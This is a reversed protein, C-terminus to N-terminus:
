AQTADSSPAVSKILKAPNGGVVTQPAVDKTVVAGAGVIAHAGITVGPLLTANAGIWAGTEIHIPATKLINMHHIDHNATLLTVGPAIQVDDAIFIGGLAVTTLDHNIFVHHGLHLHNIRDIQVPAWITSDSPMAQHFLANIATQQEASGPASTNIKFCGQRSTTFESQLAQYAPQNM